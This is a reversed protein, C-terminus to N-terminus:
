NVTDLKDVELKLSALDDKKYFQSADVSAANKLDPKTSYDSLDLEVEM